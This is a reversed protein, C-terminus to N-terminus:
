EDADPLSPVTEEKSSPEEPYRAVLWLFKCAEGVGMHAAVDYPDEKGEAYWYTTTFPLGGNVGSDTCLFLAILITTM